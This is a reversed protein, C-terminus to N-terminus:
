ASFVEDLSLQLDPFLAGGDIVGGAEIIQVPAQPTHIEVTLADTDVVWVVTGAALYNSLKIRTDKPSDDPSLVEVALEPPNPNYGRRALEPQRAKAIYAVDPAYREGYVMYGGQEGTVYGQIHNARVYHRLATAINIAIFSSYANSPVEIIEGGILEFKRDGNAPDNVMAEFEAISVRAKESYIM